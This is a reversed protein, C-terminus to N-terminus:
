NLLAMKDFSRGQFLLERLWSSNRYVEFKDNRNRKIDHFLRLIKLKNKVAQKRHKNGLNINKSIIM